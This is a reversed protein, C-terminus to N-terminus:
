WGSRLCDVIRARDEDSVWWGCPISLNEADFCDVGPLSPKATGYCSYVDNRTHLRQTGIGHSLLKRILDDRREARLAYTWYASTVDSRRRLLKLGAIDKLAADYFLGNAQHRAVIDDAHSLAALGFTAAIENMTFNFGAVSIDYQPNLDGNPLRFSKYDIGFRRLRRAEEAMEVNATILAGGEGGTNLHKTAYFSYITFDADRGLKSNHSRAGFAETADEVLKIGRAKALAAIAAIDAVDGAWHYLLIARTKHTILSDIKAADMMGTAPDIDCWIPRAFLNAIPMLSASCAMPSTIVEDGPRVGAMYLALTIGASADNLAVVNPAELWRGLAAEFAAVQPGMALRGSSLVPVLKAQVDQPMFVKFLPINAPVSM